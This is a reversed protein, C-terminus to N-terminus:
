TESPSSRRTPSPPRSAERPRAAHCTIYAIIYASTCRAPRPRLAPLMSSRPATRFPLSSTATVNPPPPDRAGSSPHTGGVAPPSTARGEELPRRLCFVTSLIRQSRISAPTWGGSRGPNLLDVPTPPPSPPRSSRDATDRLNTAAVSGAGPRTIAGVTRAPCPPTSPRRPASRRVCRRRPAPCRCRRGGLMGMARLSPEMRSRGGQYLARSPPSRSRFRVDGPRDERAPRGELARDRATRSTNSL